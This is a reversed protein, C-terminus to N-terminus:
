LPFYCCPNKAHAVAFASATIGIGVIVVLAIRVKTRDSLGSGRVSKVDAYSITKVQGTKQDTLSFSDENIVSIHGKQQSKDHLTVKVRYGERTGRKQVEAKVKAAQATQQPPPQAAEQSITPAAVASQVALSVALLLPLGRM